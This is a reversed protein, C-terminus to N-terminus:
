FSSNGIPRNSLMIYSFVILEIMCRSWACMLMFESLFMVCHSRNSYPKIRSQSCFINQKSFKFVPMTLFKLKHLPFNSLDSM